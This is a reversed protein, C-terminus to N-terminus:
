LSELPLAVSGDPAPEFPFEFAPFPVVYRRIPSTILLRKRHPPTYLIQGKHILNPDLAMKPAGYSATSALM